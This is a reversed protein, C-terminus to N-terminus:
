PPRGSALWDVFTKVSTRLGKSDEGLKMIWGQLEESDTGGPGSCGYLKCTVLKLAEEAINLPIFIPMEEYMELSAYSPIKERM